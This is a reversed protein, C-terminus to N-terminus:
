EEAQIIQRVTVHCTHAGDGDPWDRGAEVAIRWIDGQAILPAEGSFLSVQSVTKGKQEDIWDKLERPSWEGDVAKQLAALPYDYKLAVEYLNLPQDPYRVGPQFTRGLEEFQKLRRTTYFVVSALQKYIGYKGFTDVVAAVLDALHWQNGRGETVIEAAVEQADDLSEFTFSPKGEFPDYWWDLFTKPM